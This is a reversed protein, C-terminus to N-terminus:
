QSFDERFYIRFFFFGLDGFIGLYIFCSSGEKKVVDMIESFNFLIYIYLCM